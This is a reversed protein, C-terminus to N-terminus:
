TQLQRVRLKMYCCSVLSLVCKFRKAPPPPSRLQGTIREQRSCTSGSTCEGDLSLVLYDKHEKLSNCDVCDKSGLKAKHAVPMLIAPCVEVWNPNSASDANQAQSIARGQIASYRVTDYVTSYRLFWDTHYVTTYESPSSGFLQSQALKPEQQNM